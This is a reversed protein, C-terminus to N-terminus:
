KHKINLLRILLDDYTELYSKGNIKKYTKLDNLQSRIETSIQITTRNEKKDM